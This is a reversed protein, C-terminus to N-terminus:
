PFHPRKAKNQLLEVLLEDREREVAAVDWGSMENKVGALVAAKVEETMRTPLLSEWYGDMAPGLHELLHGMGGPGGSITQTAFPGLLAWRM